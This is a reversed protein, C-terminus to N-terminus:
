NSIAYPGALMNIDTTHFVESGVPGTISFIRLYGYYTGSGNDASGNWDSLLYNITLTNDYTVAPVQSMGYDTPLGTGSDPFIWSTNRGIGGAYLDAKNFAFVASGYFSASDVDFLNVQVVIRNTNFGVNPSDGLQPVGSTDTLAYSYRNWNGTPDSTQSVAVLLLSAANSDALSTFIWRQRYPDFLVHPDVANSCSLAGGAPCWWDDLTITSIVQGTRDEVRVQSNLTVLLYSPGVAGYTGPLTKRGDDELALFGSSIPPSAVLPGGGGTSAAALPQPNLSASSPSVSSTTAPAASRKLQPKASAPTSSPVPLGAQWLSPPPLHHLKQPARFVRKKTRPQSSPTAPASIQSQAALDSFNAVDRAVAVGPTGPIGAEASGIAPQGASSPQANLLPCSLLCGLLLAALRLLNYPGVSSSKSGTPHNMTLPKISWMFRAFDLRLSHRIVLNSM